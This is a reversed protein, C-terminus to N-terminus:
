SLGIAMVLLVISFETRSWGLAHTVPVLFIGFTGNIVPTVGVLHCLGRGCRCRGFDSWENEGAM